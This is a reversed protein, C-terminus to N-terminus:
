WYYVHPKRKNNPVDVLDLRDLPIRKIQKVIRNARTREPRTMFTYTWWSPTGQWHWETDKRRPKKALIGARKLSFYTNHEYPVDQWNTGSATYEFKEYEDDRNFDPFRVKYPRDKYTRSM